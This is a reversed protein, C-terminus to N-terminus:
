PLSHRANKIRRRRLDFWYIKNGKFDRSSGLKMRLRGPPDPIVSILRKSPLRPKSRLAPTAPAMSAAPGEQASPVTRRGSGPPGSSRSSVVSNGSFPLMTSCRVLGAKSSVGNATNSLPMKVGFSRNKTRQCQATIGFSISTAAKRRATRPWTLVGNDNDIASRSASGRKSIAATLWHEPLERPRNWGRTAPPCHAFPAIPLALHVPTRRRSTSSRAPTLAPAAATRNLPRSSGTTSSPGSKM